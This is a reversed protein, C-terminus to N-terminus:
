PRSATAAWSTAAAPASGSASSPPAAGPPGGALQSKSLGLEALLAFVETAPVRAAAIKAPKAMSAIKARPKAQRASKTLKPPTAAETTADLM